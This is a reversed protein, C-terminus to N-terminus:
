EDHIGIRPSHRLEGVDGEIAAIIAVPHRRLETLVARVFNSVHSRVLAVRWARPSTKIDGGSSFFGAAETIILPPAVDNAVITQRAEKFPTWSEWVM